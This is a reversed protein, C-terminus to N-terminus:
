FTLIIKGYEIFQLINNVHYQFDRMFLKKHTSPYHLEAKDWATDRPVFYTFRKYPSNLQENFRDSQGLWFTKSCNWIVNFRLVVAVCWFESSHLTLPWSRALLRTPSASCGTSSTCSATPPLLTPSSLLPTSVEERWPWPRTTATSSSTSTSTEGPPLLSPRSVNESWENIWNWIDMSFYGQELLLFFLGM